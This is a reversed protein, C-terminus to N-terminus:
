TLKDPESIKGLLMYSPDSQAKQEFRKNLKNFNREYEEKLESKICEYQVSEM